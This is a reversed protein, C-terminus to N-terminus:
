RLRHDDSRGGVQGNRHYIVIRVIQRHRPNSCDACCDDTVREVPCPLRKASQRQGHVPGRSGASNLSQQTGMRVM